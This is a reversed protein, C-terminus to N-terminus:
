AGAEQARARAVLLLNFSAYLLALVAVGLAITFADLWGLSRGTSQSAAVGCLLLLLGNRLVLGYTLPQPPGGCGCDISDLGRALNVLIAATYLSLLAMAGFYSLPLQALCAVGLLLEALVFGYASPTVIEAPLLQYAGLSLRFELMDRLKHSAAYLLLVGIGLRAITVIAPDLTM